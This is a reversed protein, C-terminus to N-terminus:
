QLSMKVFVPCTTLVYQFIFVKNEDVPGGRVDKCIVFYLLLIIYM